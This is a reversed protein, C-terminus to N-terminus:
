EKNNLFQSYRSWFSQPLKIGEFNFSPASKGRKKLNTFGPIKNARMKEYAKQLTTPNFTKLEFTPAGTRDYVFIGKLTKILVGDQNYEKGKKIMFNVFDREKNENDTLEGVVFISDEEVEGIGEEGWHGGVFFYGYGQRKIDGALQKNRQINENYSLDGRFATLLAFMRGSDVHQWIRSLSSEVLPKIENIKM